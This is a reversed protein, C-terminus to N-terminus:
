EDEEKKLVYFFPLIMADIEEPLEKVDIDRDNRMVLTTGGEADFCNKRYIVIANLRIRFEKGSELYHLKIFATM